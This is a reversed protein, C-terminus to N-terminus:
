VDRLPMRHCWRAFSSLAHQHIRDTFTRSFYKRRGFQSASKFAPNGGFHPGDNVIWMSLIERFHMRPPSAPDGDLVIDGPSLQKAVVSMPRFNPSATGRPPATDGDLCHPRPRPTGEYWTADQDMWRNPWLVGVDCVPCVVRDSLV